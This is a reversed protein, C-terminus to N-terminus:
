RMGRPASMALACVISVRQMAVRWVQKAALAYWVIENCAILWAVESRPRSFAARASDVQLAATRKVLTKPWIDLSRPADTVRRGFVKLRVRHLEDKRAFRDPNGIIFPRAGVM